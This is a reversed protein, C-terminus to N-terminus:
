LLSLAYINSPAVEYTFIGVSFAFVSFCALFLPEMPLHLHYINKPPLYTALSTGRRNAEAARQTRIRVDRLFGFHAVYAFSHGVCELGGFFYVFFIDIKSIL